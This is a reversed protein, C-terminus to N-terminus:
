EAAMKEKQIKNLITKVKELSADDLISVSFINKSLKPAAKKLAALKKKLDAPSLEDSKSLFLYEPKKLLEKNHTGLEKRITKYDKAPSESEASVFHFLIRTREIHRLFKTGLGKGVSSGEILGPIDALILEYYVGLNPELTTFAYNAVKSRANTLENLLSSKGVNPLGVFGVDAILKLELRFTFQEGPLGTQFQRPSTNRSSRFHFNGKGGKGGKALLVREGIKTIEIKAPTETYQGFESTDNQVTLNHIVTGVPVRLVLDKGDHGDKFQDRGNMGNEASFAKKHRFQGLASLDSLGEVFVSGGRGGSGGVPGLSLMNKNFAVAGRGGNGASVKITVDDILM